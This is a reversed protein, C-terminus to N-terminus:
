LSKLAQVETVHKLLHKATLWVPFRWVSVDELRRRSNADLANGAGLLATGFAKTTGIAPKLIVAPASRMVAMALEGANESHRIDTGVAIIADRASMLDRELHRVASRLGSAVTLPQNAYSSVARSSPSASLHSDSDYDQGHGPSTSLNPSLLTEAGQLINGTGIAVRAGLRALESTTTKAFAIAGKGISRVLRGDKQYENMPVVILNRVGTGVNVLPRLPALGQLVTPLQNRTVDAVWLDNLIKHLNDFGSIGFIILRKLLIEAGDLIIFNVFEKTHGSRLGAYDIKKPKYDLKLHVARVEIRQIFPEEGTKAVPARSTDKFEFFRTIFDLTDQDVHLRLPLVTARIVMETAALEPKPKVNQLELHIMPKGVPRPGADHMYTIFKRWTSSPVHDYIELDGVRVNISSQTEVVSPPLVLVETDLNRVEISVKHRKSRDLKLTRSRRQRLAPRTTSQSATTTMTGTESTLDDVERNIRKRLDKEDKNPPVAIWISQFLFDGIESEEEEFEHPHRQHDARRKAARIQVDDVAQNIADRTKAWDYGDFINWVFTQLHFNLRFPCDKMTIDPIIGYRNSASNWGHIADKSYITELHGDIIEFPEGCTRINLMSKNSFPQQAVRLPALPATEESAFSVTSEELTPRKIEPEYMSGVMEFGDSLEFLVDPDDNFNPLDGLHDAEAQEFDDGSFSNFLDEAPMPDNYYAMESSPMSPPKLGDIIQILTQTSDACTELILLESNVSVVLTSAKKQAHEEAHFTIKTSSLTGLNKYGQRVLDSVAPSSHSSSRSRRAPEVDLDIISTDDIALLSARRIEFAGRVPASASVHATFHANSLLFVARSIDGSPNLGAACDRLLVSVKIPRSMSKSSADSLASSQRSFSTPLTEGRVTTISSIMSTTIDEATTHGSVGMMSMLTSVRYELGLNFLKVKITPELEDGIIKMMVMPLNDESQLPLVSGILAEENRMLEFSEFQLALLAPLGVHALRTNHTEVIIKGISPNVKVSARIRPMSLLTLIGPRDDDPLYKAVNSLKSLEEGLSQLKPIAELDSLQIDIDELSTRIVSGKKRQRLLTDVLIDDDDEYPDRTPVILSLLAALDDEEPQFLFEVLTNLVTVSLPNRRSSSNIIPGKLKIRPLSISVGRQNLEAQMARSQISVGCFRGKVDIVMADLQVSARLPLAAMTETPASVSPQTSIPQQKPPPALITSQSAISNGIDLVGSLGGYCELREDIKQMDISIHLPATFMHLEQGRSRSRIYKLEIDFPTAETVVRSSTTNTPMGFGVIDQGPIGLAFKGVEAGAVMFFGTKRLHVKTNQLTLDLLAEEPADLKWSTALTTLREQLSLRMKKVNISISLPSDTTPMSQGKNSREAFEPKKKSDMSTLIQEMLVLILRGASLDIQGQLHEVELELDTKQKDDQNDQARPTPENQTQPINPVPRDAPTKAKRRVKPSSDFAGPMKAFFQEESQSESDAESPVDAGSGASVVTEPTGAWPMKITIADLSFLTQTEM